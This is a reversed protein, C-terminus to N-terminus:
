RFIAGLWQVSIIDSSHLNIVSQFENKDLFGNKLDILLGNHNFNRYTQSQKIIPLHISSFLDISWDGTDIYQLVQHLCALACIHKVVRLLDVLSLWTFYARVNDM